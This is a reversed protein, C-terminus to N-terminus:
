PLSPARRVQARKDFPDIKSLGQARCRNGFDLGGQELAGGELRKSGCDLLAHAQRDDFVDTEHIKNKSRQHAPAICPEQSAATIL